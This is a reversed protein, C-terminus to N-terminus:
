FFEICSPPDRRFTYTMRPDESCRLFHLATRLREITSRIRELSDITDVTPPMRMVITQVGICKELFWEIAQESFM